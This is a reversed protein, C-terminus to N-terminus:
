STEKLIAELEGAQQENIKGKALAIPITQLGLEQYPSLLTPTKEKLAKLIKEPTIPLETIRVGIADYIANAIAPVPPVVTAESMGKAGFPGEPDITEVLINEVEPMDAARPLRYDFLSPNLVKGDKEIIEEYLTQGLADFVSGEIPTVSGL